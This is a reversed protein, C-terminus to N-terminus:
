EELYRKNNFLFKNSKSIEMNYLNIEDIEKCEKIQKVESEEKQLSILIKSSIPYFVQYVKSKGTM